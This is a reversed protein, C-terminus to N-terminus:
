LLEVAFNRSRKFPAITWAIQNSGSQGSAYAQHPMPIADGYGKRKGETALTTGFRGIGTRERVSSHLMSPDHVLESVSDWRRPKPKSVHM